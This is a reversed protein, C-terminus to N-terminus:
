AVPGISPTIPGRVSAAMLANWYASFRVASPVNVLAVRATSSRRMCSGQRSIAVSVHSANSTANVLLRMAYRSAYAVADRGARGQGHITIPVGVETYM